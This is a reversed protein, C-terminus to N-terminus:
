TPTINGPVPFSNGNEETYIRDLDTIVFELMNGQLCFLPFPFRNVQIM